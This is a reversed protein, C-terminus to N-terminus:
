KRKMVKLLKMIHIILFLALLLTFILLWIHFIFLELSFTKVLPVKSFYRTCIIINYCDEFLLLFYQSGSEGVRRRREDTTTINHSTRACVRLRTCADSIDPTKNKEETHFTNKDKHFKSFAVIRNVTWTQRLRGSTRRQLSFASSLHLASGRRLGHNPPFSPNEARPDPDPDTGRSNYRLM